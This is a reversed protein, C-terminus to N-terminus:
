NGFISQVVRLILPREKQRLGWYVKFGNSLQYSWETKDNQSIKCGPENEHTRRGAGSVVKTNLDITFLETACLADKRLVIAAPTWSQIDYDVVEAM